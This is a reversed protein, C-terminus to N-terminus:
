PFGCNEESFAEVELKKEQPSKAGRPLISNLPGLRTPLKPSWHSACLWSYIMVMNSRLHGEYSGEIAKIIKSPLMTTIINTKVIIGQNALYDVAKKGKHLDRIGLPNILFANM